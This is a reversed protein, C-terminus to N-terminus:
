AILCSLYLMLYLLSNFTVAAKVESLVTKNSKIVDFDKSFFDSMWLFILLFIAVWNEASKWSLLGFIWSSKSKFVGTLKESFSVWEKWFHSWIEVFFGISLSFNSIM